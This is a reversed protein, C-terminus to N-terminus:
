HRLMQHRMVFFFRLMTLLDGLLGGKACAGEWSISANIGVFGFYLSRLLLDNGVLLRLLRIPMLLGDHVVVMMVVVHDLLSRGAVLSNDICRGRHKQVIITWLHGVILAILKESEQLILLLFPVRLCDIVQDALVTNGCNDFFLHLRFYILTLLLRLDAWRHEKPNLPDYSIM